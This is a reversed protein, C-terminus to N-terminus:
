LLPVRIIPDPIYPDIEWTDTNETYGLARITYYLYLLAVQFCVPKKPNWVSTKSLADWSEASLRRLLPDTLRILGNPDRM